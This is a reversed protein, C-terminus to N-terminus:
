ANDDTVRRNGYVSLWCENCLQGAGEVYDYRLQVPTDVSYGIPKGCRCCREMRQSQRKKGEKKSAGPAGKGEKNPRM